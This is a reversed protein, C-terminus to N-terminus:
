GPFVMAIAEGLPDIGLVWPYFRSGLWGHVLGLPWLNRHKQFLVVYLGGLLATGVLLPPHALHVVGFGVAGLLVLWPLKAGSLQRVNDVVLRQVVWQQVLGWIPYLLLSWAMSATWLEREHWLAWGAGLPVAVVVIPVLVWLMPGLNRGPILGADALFDRGESRLRVVVYVAAAVLSAAIFSALPWVPGPPKPLAVFIIAVLGVTLLEIWPRM